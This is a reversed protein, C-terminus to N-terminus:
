IGFLTWSLRAWFGTPERLKRLRDMCEEDTIEGREYADHAESAQRQKEALVRSSSM